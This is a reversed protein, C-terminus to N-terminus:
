KAGEGSNRCKLPRAQANARISLDIVPTQCQHAPHIQINKRHLHLEEKKFNDLNSKVECTISEIGLRQVALFRKSGSVIEYKIMEGDSTNLTHVTIPHFLGHEKISDSLEQIKADVEPTPQLDCKIENIPISRM